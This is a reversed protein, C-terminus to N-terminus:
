ELVGFRLLGVIFRWKRVQSRRLNFNLPLVRDQAYATGFGCVVAGTVCFSDRAGGGGYQGDSRRRRLM